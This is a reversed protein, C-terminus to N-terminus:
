QISLSGATLIPQEPDDIIQVFVDYRGVPLQAVGDPGVLCRAVYPTDSDWSGGFWDTDTQPSIGTPCFAFNVADSTPDIVTGSPLVADIVSRYYYTGLTSFPGNLAM